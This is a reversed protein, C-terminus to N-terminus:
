GERKKPHVVYRDYLYLVNVKKMKETSSKELARVCARLAKIDPDMPKRM